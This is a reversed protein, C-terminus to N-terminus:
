GKRDTGPGRPRETVPRRNPPQRETGAVPVRCGCSGCRPECEGAARAQPSRKDLRVNREFRRWPFSVDPACLGSGLWSFTLSAKRSGAPAQSGGSSWCVLVTIRSASRCPGCAETPSGFTAFGAGFIRVDSQPGRETSSASCRRGVSKRTSSRSCSRWMAKRGPSISAECWSSMRRDWGRCHRTEAHLSASVREHDFAPKVALFPAQEAHGASRTPPSLRAGCRSSASPRVRVPSM